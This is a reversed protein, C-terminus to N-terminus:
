KMLEIHKPSLLIMNNAADKMITMIMCEEELEVFCRQYGEFPSFSFLFMGAVDHFRDVSRCLLIFHKTCPYEIHNVLHLRIINLVLVICVFLHLIHMPSLIKCWRTHNLWTQVMFCFVIKTNISLIMVFGMLQLVNLM